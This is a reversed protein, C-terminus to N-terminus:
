EKQPRGGSLLGTVKFRMVDGEGAEPAKQFIFVRRCERCCGSYFDADDEWQVGFSVAVLQRTARDATFQLWGNDLEAAVSDLDDHSLRYGAAFYSCRPCANLALLAMEADSIENARQTRGRREARGSSVGTDASESKGAATITETQDVAKGEPVM